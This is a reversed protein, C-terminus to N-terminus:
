IDASPRAWATAERPPLQELTFLWVSYGRRGTAYAHEAVRYLGDYRYGEGVRRVVRVPLGRAHSTALARNGRTLAQDRVQRGTRPDRGGEGTYVIAEGADHDDEYAGALVVSTAGEAARGAIGARLPRHVGARALARRSAFFSGRPYGPVEGFLLPEPM